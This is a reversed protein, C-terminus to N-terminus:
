VPLGLLVGVSVNVRAFLIIGDAVGIAVRVDIGDSYREVVNEGDNDNDELMDLLM